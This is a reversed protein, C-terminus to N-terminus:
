PAILAPKKKKPEGPTLGQLKFRTPEDAGYLYVDVAPATPDLGILAPAKKVSKTFVTRGTKKDLIFLRDAEDTFGYGTLLHDGAVLILDRSTKPKSRWLVKKQITDYAVVQSCQGKAEKAYTQCAENYYLTSGALVLDHVVLHTKRQFLANFDVEFGLSGDPLYFRAIQRCNEWMDTIACGAADGPRGFMERYLALHGRATELPPFVRTSPLPTVQLRVLEMTDVGLPVYDPVAPGVWTRKDTVLLTGEFDGPLRDRTSETRTAPPDSVTLGLFTRDKALAPTSLSAATLTLTTLLLTLPSRDM